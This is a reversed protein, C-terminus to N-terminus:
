RRGQPLVGGSIKSVGGPRTIVTYNMEATTAARFATQAYTFTDTSVDLVRKPCNVVCMGCGQCNDPYRVNVKRATKDIRFVDMPCIEACRGCGVCAEIDSVFVSM